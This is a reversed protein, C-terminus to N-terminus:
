VSFLCTFVGWSKECTNLGSYFLNCKQLNLRVEDENFISAEIQILHEVDVETEAKFVAIRDFVCKVFCKDNENAEITTKDKTAIMEAIKESSVNFTTACEKKIDWM